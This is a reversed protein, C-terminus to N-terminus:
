KKELYLTRMVVEAQIKRDWLRRPVRKFKKRGRDLELRYVSFRWPAKTNRPRIQVFMLDGEVCNDTLGSFGVYNALAQGEDECSALTDFNM